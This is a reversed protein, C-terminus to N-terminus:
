KHEDKLNGNGDWMSELKPPPEHPKDAQALMYDVINEGAKKNPRQPKRDGKEEREDASKGCGQWLLWLLM